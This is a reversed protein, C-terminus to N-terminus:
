AADANALLKNVLSTVQEREDERRRVLYVNVTFPTRDATLLPRFVVGAFRIHCLSAPLLAFGRQSAIANLLQLRDPPMDALTLSRRKIVADYKDYLGPNHGRAFWFLPLHRVDELSVAALAAAPHGSPLALLLPEIHLPTYILASDPLAHEVTIALDLEQEILKKLLPQSFPAHHLTKAATAPAHILSAIDPQHRLDLMDTLGIRLPHNAQQLSNVAQSLLSLICHAEKELIRGAETLEVAHTSRLLVACGLTEELCQIQRSLPPQTMGLSHAARRFNLTKAVAVFCQLQKVTPLKQQEM